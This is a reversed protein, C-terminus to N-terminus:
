LLTLEQMGGFRDKSYLRCNRLKQDELLERYIYLASAFVHGTSTENTLRAIAEVDNMCVPDITMIMTTKAQDNQQDNQADDKM